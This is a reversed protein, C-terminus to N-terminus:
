RIAFVGNLVNKHLTKPLAAYQFPRILRARTSKTRKEIAHHSVYGTANFGCFITIAKNLNCAIEIQILDLIAIGFEGMNEVAGPDIGDKPFGGLALPFEGSLLSVLCDPAHFEQAKAKVFVQRDPINCSEPLHIRAIQMVLERTSALLEPFCKALHQSEV